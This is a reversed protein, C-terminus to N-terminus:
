IIRIFDHLGMFLREVQFYYLGEGTWYLTQFCFQLEGIYWLDTIIWLWWWTISDHPQIAYKESMRAVCWATNVLNWMDSICNHKSYYTLKHQACKMDIVMSKLSAIWLIRFDLLDFLLFDWEWAFDRCFSLFDSNHMEHNAQQILLFMQSCISGLNSIKKKITSEIM